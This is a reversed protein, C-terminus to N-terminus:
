KDKKDKDSDDGKDKNRPPESENEEQAKEDDINTILEPYYDLEASAQKRLKDYNFFGLRKAIESPPIGLVDVISGHKTGLLATAVSELDEMKTVPLSIDVMKYSPIKIRKKKPNKNEDYDEVIETYRSEKFNSVASRLKFVGRLFQLLFRHFYALDDYTRDAQPGHSAKVSAYTSSYDGMMTDKPKNLGSSVMDLIDTDSDSIKPLDPTKAEMTLGPPLVITGGADKPEMIGTAKREEESLNLWTKFSKLNEVTVIWLYSGSAKKHDIEFEKLQEYYNVWKVTTKVHSANRQTMFGRDWSIIFRNFGNLKNYKKNDGQSFRAKNSNYERHNKLVNFLDPFYALNISPVIVTNELQQKKNKKVQGTNYSSFDFNVLYALPFTTKTPHFLIGTNNDGGPGLFSPDIFDIEVFGDTHVTGMLFLEGEVESRATYKPFFVRLDNRPDDMLEDLVNQIELSSSSLDFGWGTMRGSFDRVHSNIQPNAEFKNWCESQLARLGSYDNKTILPFGDEDTFPRRPGSKAPAPAAQSPFSFQIERLTDDPLGRLMEVTDNDNLSTASVPEAQVSRNQTQPTRPANRKSRAM